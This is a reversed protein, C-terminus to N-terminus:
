IFSSLLRQHTMLENHSGIEIIKGKDLVVIQNTHEATSLRHAVFIITKETMSMLNDIVKKETLVDLGSTAEDLILIPSKTLLARALSIRQKQGGSLGAGDPYGMPMQEIDERIEAMDCANIIGEQAIAQNAGLTLNELISGSFIYAQQPLYQNDFRGLHYDSLDIL